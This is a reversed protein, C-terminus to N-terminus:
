TADGSAPHPQSHPAPDDDRAGSEILHAHLRRVLEPAHEGEVVLSLTVDSAQSVLHVPTTGVAEFVRANIGPESMLGRGVLTVTALGTLISVDAFASLERETAGLDEAEDLTFATRTHSTAVLDVPLRHRSLVDFVRALFGYPMASAHSRVRILAVGTSHAVAAVGAPGLRERLIRTGPHDPDFTSRVRVVLGRSAAHKAAAPHLVKAGFHALEVAEEYGISDVLRPAAVTRPDGSLVGEVDTWIHLEPAELAAALLTATFDSGGRGLTTTRGDETAGVFGQVVAVEGARLVPMLEAWARSALTAEDPRARTFSADTRVVDRADVRRAAIGRVQLAVVLLLSSLDEGAARVRDAREERSGPADIAAELAHWVEDLLAGPERGLQELVELHRQRLAEIRSLASRQDGTLIAAELEVLTDTVGGLASVVVVIPAPERAILEAVQRLRPADAVSSGGFKFVVPGSM